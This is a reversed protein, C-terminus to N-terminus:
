SKRDAPVALRAANKDLNRGADIVLADDNRLVVGIDRQDAHALRGGIHDDGVAKVGFLGTSGEESFSDLDVACSKLCVVQSKFVGGAVSTLSDRGCHAGISGDELVAAKEAMLVREEGVVAALIVDVGVDLAADVEDEAVGSGDEVVGLDVGVAAAVEGRLRTGREMLVSAVHDDVALDGTSIGFGCSGSRRLGRLAGDAEATGPTGERAHDVDIGFERGVYDRLSPVRPASGGVRRLGPVRFEFAGTGAGVWRGADGPRM